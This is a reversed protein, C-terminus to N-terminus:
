ENEEWEEQNDSDGQEQEQGKVINITIGTKKDEYEMVNDRNRRWQEPKRNNLWALCATVSPGVETVTKEVKVTRNGDKNPEVNMLTKVTETKYGLAARLLANEVKYDVLQKGKACAEKLEKYKRRWTFFTQPTTGLAKAIADMSMGDRVMCQILFLGDKSLVEERSLRYSCQIKEEIPLDEIYQEEKKM